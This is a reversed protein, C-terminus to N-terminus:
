KSLLEATNPFTQRWSTARSTDLFDLFKVLKTDEPRTTELYTYLYASTRAAWPSKLSNLRNIAYLKQPTTLKTIDFFSPKEVYRYHAQPLGLSASFEDIDDFDFLNLATICSTLLVNVNETKLDLVKRLNSELVSWKAPFRLVEYHARVSDISVRLDVRKFHKWLELIKPNLAVLNTDLEVLINSAYGRDVCRRLLEDHAPVLMPEGGTIYLHRLQPLVEDLQSWWRDTEWWPTSTNAGTSNFVKGTISPNVNRGGFTFNSRGYFESYEALWKDSYWPGCTVCKLNCLNGFRLDLAYPGKVVLGESMVDQFTEVTPYPAPVRKPIVTSVYHRRSNGNLNDRDYCVQCMPHQEDKNHADRIAKNWKSNLADILKHTAINMVVGTSDDICGGMDFEAKNTLCCARFSGDPLVMVLTYPTSCFVDQLTM